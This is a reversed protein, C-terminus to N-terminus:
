IRLRIISKGEGFERFITDHVKKILEDNIIADRRLELIELMDEPNMYFLFCDIENRKMNCEKILYEEVECYDYYTLTHEEPKAM